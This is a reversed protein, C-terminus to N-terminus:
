GVCLLDMGVTLAVGLLIGTPIAIIAVTFGHIAVIGTIIAVSVMGFLVGGIVRKATKTKM